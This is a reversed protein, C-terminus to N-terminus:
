ATGEPKSSKRRGRLILRIRHPLNRDMRNLFARGRPSASALMAAGAIYFPIGTVIPIIWGVFGLALCMVGGVGLLVRKWLPPPPRGEPFLDPLEEEPASATHTAQDPQVIM